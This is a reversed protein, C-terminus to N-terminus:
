TGPGASLIDKIVSNFDVADALGRISIDIVEPGGAPNPTRMGTLTGSKIGQSKAVNLAVAMDAPYMIHQTMMAEIVDAPIQTDQDIKNFTISWSM